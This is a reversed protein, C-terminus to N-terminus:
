RPTAPMAAMGPNKRQMIQQEVLAALQGCREIRPLIEAGSPTAISLWGYNGILAKRFSVAQVNDLYFDLNTRPTKM